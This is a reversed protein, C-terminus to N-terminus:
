IAIAEQLLPQWGRRLQLAELMKQLLYSLVWEDLRKEEEEEKRM